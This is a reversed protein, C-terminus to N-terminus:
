RAATTLPQNRSEKQPQPRPLADVRKIHDRWEKPLNGFKKAGLEKRFYEKLSM